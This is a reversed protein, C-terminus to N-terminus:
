VTVSALLPCVYNVIISVIDIGLILCELVREIQGPSPGNWYEIPYPVLRHLAPSDCRYGEPALQLQFWGIPWGQSPPNCSSYSSSISELPARENYRIGSSVRYCDGDLQRILFRLSPFSWETFVVFRQQSSIFDISRRPQDPQDTSWINYKSYDGNLPLIPPSVSLKVRCPKTIWRGSEMTSFVRPPHLGFGPYLWTFRIRRDRLLTNSQTM